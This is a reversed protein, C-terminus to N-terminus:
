AVAQAIDLAIRVHAIGDGALFLRVLVLPRLALAHFLEDQQQEEDQAGADEAPERLARLALPLAFRGAATGGCVSIRDAGALCACGPRVPRCSDGTAARNGPRDATGHRSHERRPQTARAPVSRRRQRAVDCLATIVEYLM